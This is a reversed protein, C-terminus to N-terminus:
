LGKVALLKECAAYPYVPGDKCIFQGALQCHGCHGIACKMNRELSVFIQEAAVECAMFAKAVAIMMAEPGVTMVLCNAFDVDLQPILSTILGSAWPWKGNDLPAQDSTAMAVKTQPAHHWRTYLEQYILLDASRLGHLIRLKGYKSRDSLIEEIAAVLPANGLGGTVIIVDRGYAATLPWTSGFPGRVGIRDGPRLKMMGKTIRGVVQITHEFYGVQHYRDNVISIAVEGVGYLYLMNFQGPRFAYNAALHADSFKVRLTFIDHHEHIFEVIEAEQPLYADATYLM